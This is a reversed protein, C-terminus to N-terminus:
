SVLYQRSLKMINVSLLGFNTEVVNVCLSAVNYFVCQMYM